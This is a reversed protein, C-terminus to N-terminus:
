VKSAVVKRPTNDVQCPTGSSKRPVFEEQDQQCPHSYDDSVCAVAFQSWRPPFVFLGESNQSVAAARARRKRTEIRRQNQNFAASRQPRDPTQSPNRKKDKPPAPASHSTCCRSSRLNPPFVNPLLPMQAQKISKNSDQHETYRTDRSFTIEAM